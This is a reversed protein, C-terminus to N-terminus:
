VGSRTVEFDEYEKGIEAGLKMARERRDKASIDFWDAGAKERVLDKYKM